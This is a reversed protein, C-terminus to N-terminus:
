PDGSHGRFTLLAESREVGREARRGVAPRVRHPLRRRGGDGRLRHRVLRRRVTRATAEPDRHYRSALNPGRVLLLGPEDRQAASAPRRISWASRSARCRIAVPARARLSRRTNRRFRTPCTSRSSRDASRVASAPSRARARFPGRLRRRARRDSREPGVITERVSEAPESPEVTAILERSCTPRRRSCRSGSAACRRGRRVRRGAAAGFVVTLGNRLPFLLSGVLGFSRSLPVLGLLRDDDAPQFVRALAHSSSLIQATRCSSRSCPTAGALRADRQLDAGRDGAPRLGGGAAPRAAAAELSGSRLARRASRSRAAAPSRRARGSAAGGRVPLETPPSEPGRSRRPDDHRCADIGALEIQARLREAPTGHGLEPDLNVAVHVATASRRRPEGAGRRDVAAAAAGVRARHTGSRPFRAPGPWRRAGATRSRCCTARGDILFPRSGHRRAMRLLEVALPRHRAARRELADVALLQMRDRLQPATTAPPMPEAFVVRVPYPCVGRPRKFLLKGGRYSFISGWVGDLYVPVIPKQLQQAIKEFGRKFKLLNGTRTIAGEAFICVVDGAALRQRALELSAERKEPPDGAMIPIAHMRKFFWNLAKAEYFPRYMLFRVPRDTSPGVLLADVWSVHNAVLLAGDHPVNSAGEVRLRYFTRVVVLLVLRTFSEPLLQVIYVTVGASFVAILGLLGRSTWGLLENLLLPVVGALMIGTFTLLNQFAIIRGKCGEPSRQQILAKLPVIYLGGAIGLTFLDLAARAPVWGERVVWRDGFLVLDFAFITIVLAGLPVLGLEVRGASLRGAVISGIAVGVSVVMLLSGSAIESLGLENRAYTPVVTLLVSALFGFYVVGILAHVLSPTRKVTKWTRAAAMWPWGLHASESGCPTRPAYTAAITGVIAITVFIVGIMGRNDRFAGYLVVGMTSGFLIALNTSMEVIGNAMSLRRDSFTEPLMGFKVPSFFASQCAM